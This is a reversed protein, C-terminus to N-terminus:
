NTEMYSWLHLSMKGSDGKSEARM